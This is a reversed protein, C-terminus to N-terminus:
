QFAQAPFNFFQRDLFWLNRRHVQVDTGYDVYFVEIKDFSKFNTVVARYFNNDEEYFSVVAMELACEKPIIRYKEMVEPQGYFEMMKDMLDELEKSNERLHAWFLHPSYVEAVEIELWENELHAEKVNVQKFSEGLQVFKNIKAEASNFLKCKINPSQTILGSMHPSIPRSGDMLSVPPFILPGN